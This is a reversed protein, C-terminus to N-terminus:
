SLSEPCHLLLVAMVLLIPSAAITGILVQRVRGRIRNLPLLRASVAGTYPILLLLALAALDLQRTILTVTNIMALLGCGVGFIASAGFAQRPIVLEWLVVAVLGAVATLCLMMSTSSGGFLAIPSFGLLVSALMATGAVGGGNRETPTKAITDLPWLLSIGGLWLGLSTAMLEMDLKALRPYGIWGVISLSMIAVLIKTYNKIQPLLDLLFGILTAAAGIYFIKNTAGIQPFTPVQQYTLVYSALFVSPSVMSGLALVPLIRVLGSLGFGLVFCILAAV